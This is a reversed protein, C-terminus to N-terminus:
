ALIAIQLVNRIRAGRAFLFWILFDDIRRAGIEDDLAARTTGPVRTRTAYRPTSTENEVANLHFVFKKCNHSKRETGARAADVSYLSTSIIVFFFFFHFIYM